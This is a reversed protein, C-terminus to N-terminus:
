RKISRFLISFFSLLVLQFTSLLVHVYKEKCALCPLPQESGAVGLM